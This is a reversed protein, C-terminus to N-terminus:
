LDHVRWLRFLPLRAVSKWLTTTDVPPPRPTKRLPTVSRRSNRNEGFKWFPNTTGRQQPQTSPAAEGTELDLNEQSGFTIGAVKIPFSSRRLGLTSCSRDPWSQRILIVVFKNSDGTKDNFDEPPLSGGRLFNNAKVGMRSDSPAESQQRCSRIDGDPKM